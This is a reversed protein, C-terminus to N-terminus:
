EIEIKPCQKDLYLIAMSIANKKSIGYRKCIKKLVEIVHPEVEAYIVKKEAPKKKM